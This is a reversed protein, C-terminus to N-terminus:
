GAGTLDVTDLTGHKLGEVISEYKEPFRISGKKKLLPKATANEKDTERMKTPTLNFSLRKHGEQDNASIFSAQPPPKNSNALIVPQNIPTIAESINGFTALTKTINQRSRIEVVDPIDALSFNCIELSLLDNDDDFRRNSGRGSPDLTDLKSLKGLAGEQEMKELKENFFDISKKPKSEMYNKYNMKNLNMQNLGISNTNSTNSLMNSMTSGSSSANNQNNQNHQNLNMYNLHNMNNQHKEQVNMNMKWSNNNTFDTNFILACLSDVINSFNDNFIVSIGNLTEELSRIPIENTKELEQALKEGTVM